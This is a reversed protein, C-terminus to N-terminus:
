GCVGAGGKRNQFGSRRAVGCTKKKDPRFTVKNYGDLMIGVQYCGKVKRMVVNLSRPLGMFGKVKASLSGALGYPQHNM